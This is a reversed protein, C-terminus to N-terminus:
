TRLTTRARMALHLVVARVAVRARV